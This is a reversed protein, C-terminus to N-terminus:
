LSCSRPEIGPLLLFNKQENDCGFWGEPRHLMRDLKYKPSKGRTYILRPMLQGSM